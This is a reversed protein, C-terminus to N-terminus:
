EDDHLVRYEADIFDEDGSKTTTKNTDQRVNDKGRAYEKVIHDPVLARFLALGLLLVALDDLQGLGLIPDPILDLPFIFYLVVLLAPLVKAYTPVRNDMFLQWAFQIEQIVNTSAESSDPSKNRNPSQSM